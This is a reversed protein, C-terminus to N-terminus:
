ALREREDTNLDVKFKTALAIFEDMYVVCQDHPDALKRVKGVFKDWRAGLRKFLKEYIKLCEDQEVKLHLQCFNNKGLVAQWCQSHKCNQQRDKKQPSVSQEQQNGGGSSSPAGASTGAFGLNSNDQRFYLGEAPHIESGVTM